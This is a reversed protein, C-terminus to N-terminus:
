SKIEVSKPGFFKNMVRKIANPKKPHQANPLTKALETKASELSTKFTDEIKKTETQHLDRLKKVEDPITKDQRIDRFSSHASEMTKKLEAKVTASAVGSACDAKAKALAADLKVKLDSIGTTTLGTKEKVKADVRAREQATLTDVAIRKATEAATVQTIFTEVATKEADTTAQARLAEFRKTLDNNRQEHNESKIDDKKQHKDDRKESHEQSKTDVKTSIKGLMSDKLETIKTINTCFDGKSLETPLSPRPEAFAIPSIIATLVFGTIIRTTKM